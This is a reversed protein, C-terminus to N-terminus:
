LPLRLEIRLGGGAADGLEISGGHAQVIDRVISLGLGVGGTEANRSPDLRTFATLVEERYQPLIGPGDDEVCLHVAKRRKTASVRAESGYYLANDLLNHVVRKMAQPKLSLQCPAVPLLTVAKGERWYPQLAEHLFTSLDVRQMEEGGEGRAFDLYEGIMHEMDTVDEEMGERAADKPLLALQLRLRTLPTRLDHSIGALMATRGEVQRRIRERMQLFARGAQRVERAGSPRFDSTDQGRGFREAAQSLFVIPRIQNRLFLTAILLVLVSAFLMWLMFISATGTALRKVPVRFHLMQRGRLSNNAPVAMHLEERRTDFKVVVARGSRRQLLDRFEPFNRQVEKGDQPMPLTDMKIGLYQLAEHQVRAFDSEQQVKEWSDVAWTIDGTLSGSLQRNVNSLHRDYFMYATFLQVLLVPLVLILLSRVFLTKPLLGKIREHGPLKLGLKM